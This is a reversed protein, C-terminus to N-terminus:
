KRSLAVLEHMFLFTEQLKKADIFRKDAANLMNKFAMAKKGYSGTDVIIDSTFAEHISDEMNKTIYSFVFSTDNTLMPYLYNLQKKIKEINDREYVSMNTYLIFVKLTQNHQNEKIPVGYLITEGSAKFAAGLANLADVLGGTM